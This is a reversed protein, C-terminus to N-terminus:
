VSRYIYSLWYMLWQGLNGRGYFWRLWGHSEFLVNIFVPLLRPVAHIVLRPSFQSFGGQLYQTVSNRILYAFRKRESIDSCIPFMFGLLFLYAKAPDRSTGPVRLYM